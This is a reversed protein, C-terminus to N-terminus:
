IKYLKIHNLHGFTQSHDLENVCYCQFSSTLDNVTHKQKCAYVELFYVFVNPANVVCKLHHIFSSVYLLLVCVNPLRNLPSLKPPIM